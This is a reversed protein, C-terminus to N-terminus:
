WLYHGTGDRRWLPTSIAGCNVCERGENFHSSYTPPAMVGASTERSGIVSSASDTLLSVVSLYSSYCPYRNSPRQACVSPSPLTGARRFAAAAVAAQSAMSSLSSSLSQVQSMSPFGAIAASNAADIRSLSSASHPDLRSAWSCAAAGAAAEAAYAASYHHIGNIAAVNRFYSDTSPGRFYSEAANRNVANCGNSSSSTSNPVGNPSHTSPLSSCTSASVNISGLRSQLSSSAHHSSFSYPSDSDTLSSLGAPWSPSSRLGSSDHEYMQQRYMQASSHGGPLLNQYM